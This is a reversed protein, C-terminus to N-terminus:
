IRESKKERENEIIESMESRTLNPETRKDSNKRSTKPTENEFYM